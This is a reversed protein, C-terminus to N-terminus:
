RDRKRKAWVAISSRLLIRPSNDLPPVKLTVLPEFPLMVIV